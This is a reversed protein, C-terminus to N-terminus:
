EPQDNFTKPTHQLSDLVWEAREIAEPLMDNAVELLYSNDGEFGPYNCEIGGLCAAYDDLTIGNKAASIIVACYFWENDHWAKRADLLRAFQEDNCGTVSQDPNHCDDDDIQYDLDFEIRATYDVGDVSCTISDGVCVYADFPETFRKM